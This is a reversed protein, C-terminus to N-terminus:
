VSAILRYTIKQSRDRKSLIIIELNNFMTAQKLVENRKLSLLLGNYSNVVNEKDM